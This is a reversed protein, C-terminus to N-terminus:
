LHVGLYVSLKESAIRVVIDFIKVLYLNESPIWGQLLVSLFDSANTPMHNLKWKEEEFFLFKCTKMWIGNRSSRGM